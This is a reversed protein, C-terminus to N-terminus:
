VVEEGEEEDAAEEDLGVFCGLSFSGPRGMMTLLPMDRKLFTLDKRVGDAEVDL